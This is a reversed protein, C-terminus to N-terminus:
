EFVKRKELVNGATFLNAKLQNSHFKANRGANLVFLKTCKEQGLIEEQDELDAEERDGEEQDEESSEWKQKKGGNLM